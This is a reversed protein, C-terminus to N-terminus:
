LEVVGTPTTQRVGIATVQLVDTVDIFPTTQRVGIATVQLVDTADIFLPAPTKM